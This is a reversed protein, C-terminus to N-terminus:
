GRVPGPWIPQARRRQKKLSNQIPEKAAWNEVAEEALIREEQAYAHSHQLSEQIEGPVRTQM